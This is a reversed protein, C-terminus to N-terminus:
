PQTCPTLIGLGHLKNVTDRTAGDLEDQTGDELEYRQRVHQVIEDITRPERQCLNVALCGVHAVLHVTGTFGVYVLIEDDNECPRCVVGAAICWKGSPDPTGSMLRDHDEARV